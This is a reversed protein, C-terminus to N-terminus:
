SSLQDQTSGVPKEETLLTSEKLRTALFLSVVLLGTLILLSYKMSGSGPTKFFDM